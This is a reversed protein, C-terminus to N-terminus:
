PRRSRTHGANPATRSKGVHQEIYAVHDGNALPRLRAIRWEGAFEPSDKSAITITDERKPITIDARGITAQAFRTQVQSLSQTTAQQTADEDEMINVSIVCSVSADAPDAYTARTGNIAAFTARGAGLSRRFLSM